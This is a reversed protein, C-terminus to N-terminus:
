SIIGTKQPSTYIWAIMDHMISLNTKGSFTENPKPKFPYQIWADKMKSVCRNLNTYASVYSKLKHFNQNALQNISQEKAPWSPAKLFSFGSFEEEADIIPAAM